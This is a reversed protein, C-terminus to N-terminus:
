IWGKRKFFRYPLFASALMALLAIPYGYLTSLEPMHQFNMGYISAILTPPMFVMALVTFTKIIQNQEINILGLSSQLEFGLKQTLHESHKILHHIDHNLTILTDPLKHQLFKPCEHQFFSILLGLSSLSQYGKGLLSQLYNIERLMKNLNKTNQTLTRKNITGILSIGLEDSQEGILEFVDAAAGLMRELLSMFIDIYDNVYFHRQGIQEILSQISKPESFRLTILKDQTLIISIIHSEPLPAAKTVVSASLYLASNEQYFRNSFEIQYMEHHLPLLIGLEKELLEREQLTPMMADIWIAERISSAGQVLKSQNDVSFKTLM